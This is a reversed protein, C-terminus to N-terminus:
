KEVVGYVEFFNKVHEIEAKDSNKHLVAKVKGNEFVIFNVGTNINFNEIKVNNSISKIESIIDNNNIQSLDFYVIPNTFNNNSVYKKLKKEFDKILIDKSSAMYIVTNPNEMVYSAFEQKNVEALVGTMVSNNEYYEQRTEYWMSLYFVFVVTLICVIGYIVYNKPAIKKEEKNM